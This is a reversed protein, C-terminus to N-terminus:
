LEGSRHGIGAAEANEAAAVGASIAARAVELRLVAGGAVRQDAEAEDGPRRLFRGFKNIPSNCAPGDTEKEGEAIRRRERALRAVGADRDDALRLRHAVDRFREVGASRDDDRLAGFGAAM